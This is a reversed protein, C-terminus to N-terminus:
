VCLMTGDLVRSILYEKFGVLYSIVFKLNFLFVRRRLWDKYPYATLYM